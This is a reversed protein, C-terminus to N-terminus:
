TAIRKIRNKWYTEMRDDGAVDDFEKRGVINFEKESTDRFEVDGVPFGVGEVAEV